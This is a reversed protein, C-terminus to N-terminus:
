YLRQAVAALGQSRARHPSKDRNSPRPLHSLLSPSTVGALVRLAVSIGRPYVFVRPSDSIARRSWRAGGGRAGGGTPTGKSLSPLHNQLFSRSAAVNCGGASLRFDATYKMLCLAAARDTTNKATNKDFREARGPRRNLPYNLIRPFELLARHKQYRSTKNSRRERSRITSAELTSNLGPPMQSSRPLENQTRVPSLLLLLSKTGSSDIDVRKINTIYKVQKGVRLCKKRRRWSLFTGTPRDLGCRLYVPPLTGILADILFYVSTM